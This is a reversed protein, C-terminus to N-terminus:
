FKILNEETDLIKFCCRQISIMGKRESLLLDCRRNNECVRLIAYFLFILSLSLSLTLYGNRPSCLVLIFLFLEFSFISLSNSNEFTRLLKFLVRWVCQVQAKVDSRLHIMFPSAIFFNVSVRLNEHAV